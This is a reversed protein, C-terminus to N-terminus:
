VAAVNARAGTRRIVSSQIASENAGHDEKKRHLRPVIVKDFREQEKSAAADYADLGVCICSWKQAARIKRRLMWQAFALLRHHKPMRRIVHVGLGAWISSFLLNSVLDVVRVESM